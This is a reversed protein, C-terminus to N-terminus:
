GAPEPRRPRRAERDAALDGESGDGGTVDAVFFMGYLAGDSTTVLRRAVKRDALYHATGAASEDPRSTVPGPEMVDEAVADPDGDLARKPLIGLVISADNVVVCESWGGAAARGRAVAVRDTPACTPVERRALDGVTPEHEREWLPLSAAKWDDFAGPYGYIPGYGLGELRWAARPGM